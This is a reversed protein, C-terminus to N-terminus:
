EEEEDDEYLAGLEIKEDKVFKGKDNKKYTWVKKEM